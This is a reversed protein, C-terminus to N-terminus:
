SNWAAISQGKGAVAAKVPGTAIDGLRRLVHLGYVAGAGADESTAFAHRRLGYNFQGFALTPM